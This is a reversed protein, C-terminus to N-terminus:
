LSCTFRLALLSSTENPISVDTRKLCVTWKSGTDELVNSETPIFTSFQRVLNIDQSIRRKSLDSSEDDSDSDSERALVEDNGYNTAEKGSNSGPITEQVEPTALVHGDGLNQASSARENRRHNIPLEKVSKTKRRRKPRKSPIEQDPVSM